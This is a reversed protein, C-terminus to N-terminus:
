ATSKYIQTKSNIYKRLRCFYNDNNDNDDDNNNNNNNNSNNRGWGKVGGM